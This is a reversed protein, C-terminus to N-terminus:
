VQPSVRVQVQATVEHHLKIAITRTGLSHIAEPMNIKKKDITFGAQALAEAIQKSTVAGFLRDGEGVKARMEITVGALRAALERAAELQRRERRADAERHAEIDRLVDDTALKALQRPFLFNRAYGESVNKIEGKKGQQAVDQLFVVKM